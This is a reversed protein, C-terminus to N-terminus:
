LVEGDIGHLNWRAWVIKILAEVDGDATHAGDFRIGFQNTYLETLSPRKYGKDGRRKSPICLESRAALNQTSSQSGIQHSKKQQRRPSM